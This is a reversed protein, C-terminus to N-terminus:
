LPTLFTALKENKLPILAKAISDPCSAFAIAQQQYLFELLRAAINFTLGRTGGMRFFLTVKAVSYYLCFFFIDFCYIYEM